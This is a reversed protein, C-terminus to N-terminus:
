HHKLQDILMLSQIVWVHTMLMKISAIIYGVDGVTLEEIPLQKPTNIGVESVEFEKGTAMMKIKDGAKVVGEMVRISSIVGRYPDYESDFILAKLPESPDGEPPPVVEVIKELIDEIGINSKASALVVDDQNLGIVDELEQKVREPEAAPLDIKNVVPLLELDNDLALYVNALTQAEIGQAADVM